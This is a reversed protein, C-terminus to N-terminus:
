KLNYRDLDWRIVNNKIYDSIEKSKKVDRIIHDYFRPQWRFEISRKGAFRSVASKISGVVVALRSNHHMSFVDNTNSAESENLDALDALCSSSQNQSSDKITIIAHFHNPMITFVPIQVEDFHASINEINSKLFEGIESLHMEENYIEGFYHNMNHTCVTIFFDGCNYDYFKARPYIRQLFTNMLFYNCALNGTTAQWSRM